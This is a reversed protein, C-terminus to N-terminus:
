LPVLRVPPRRQHDEAITPPHRRHDETTTPLRRRVQASSAPLSLSLSLSLSLLHMGHPPRVQTSSAYIGHKHIFRSRMSTPVFYPSFIKNYTLLSSFTVAGFLFAPISFLLDDFPTIQLSFYNSFAIQVELACCPYLVGECSPPGWVSPGVGMRPPTTYKFHLYCTGFYNSM